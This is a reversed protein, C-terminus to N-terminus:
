RGNASLADRTSQLTLRMGEVVDTSASWGLVQRARTVELCSRDIEGLRPDAHAAVLTHEGALDNLIKVLDLVSTEQGTGVNVEGNVELAEVAALNAAVVDGVYVYDRTQRGDGYITVPEDLLLRGCFIAVVGAEGLPNQRPGYVNGYRLAITSFGFLRHYLDLYREACFKSQGYPAEPRPAVSEPSPVVETEGYIAGGTSSFVFRQVDVARAASLLNITGGVNVSADFAPDLVSKRVDIQAALHFVAGPRFREFEAAVAEADTIDIEQLTAGRALADTLNEAAGTSLNDIVVVEHGADLLGDVLNSGIFGAGGTVLARMAGPM